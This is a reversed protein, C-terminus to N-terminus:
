KQWSKDEKKDTEKIAPLGLMRATEELLKVHEVRLEYKRRSGQKAHKRHKIMKLKVTASAM